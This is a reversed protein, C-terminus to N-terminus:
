NDFEYVLYAKSFPKDRFNYKVNKRIKFYKMLVRELLYDFTKAVKENSFKNAEEETEELWNKLLFRMEDYYIPFLTGTERLYTIINDEGLYDWKNNENFYDVIYILGNELKDSDTDITAIEDKLYDLVKLEVVKSNTKKM